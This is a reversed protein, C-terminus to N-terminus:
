PLAVLEKVVSAFASIIQRRAMLRCLGRFWLREEGKGLHRSCAFGQHERRAFCATADTFVVRHSCIACSVRGPPEFRTSLAVIM